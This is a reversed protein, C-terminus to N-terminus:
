TFWDQKLEKGEKELFWGAIRILLEVCKACSIRALGGRASIRATEGERLLVRFKAGSELVSASLRERETKVAEQQIDRGDFRSTTSSSWASLSMM